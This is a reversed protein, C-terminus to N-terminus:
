DRAMSKKDTERCVEHTKKFPRRSLRESEQVEWWLYAVHNIAVKGIPVPDSPTSANPTLPPRDKSIGKKVELLDIVVKGPDSPTSDSPMLPPRDKSIGKKVEVLLDISLCHMYEYRAHCAAKVLNGNPLNWIKM